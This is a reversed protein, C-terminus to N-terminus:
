AAWWPQATAPCGGRLPTGTSRLRAFMISLLTGEINVQELKRFKDLDMEALPSVHAIGANVVVIDIGGWHGAIQNFASAVSDPNTVDLAVTMSRGTYRKEAYKGMEDLANGALDTLAVHCGAKLSRRM